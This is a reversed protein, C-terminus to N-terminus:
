HRRLYLPTEGMSRFAHDAAFLDAYHLVHAEPNRGHFPANTAHTAVTSVVVHPFDLEKLMMAGIVGHPLEHYLDTHVAGGGERRYLLPKDLDHLILIPLLLEQPLEGGWDAAARRGLDIGARTVENVHRMLPYFGSGPSFPMDELREHTSSAWSSVWATVIREQLAEPLPDLGVLWDRVVQRRWNSGRDISYPQTM